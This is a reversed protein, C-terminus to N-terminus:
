SKGSIERNLDEMWESLSMQHTASSGKGESYKKKMTQENKPNKLKSISEGSNYFKMILEIASKRTREFTGHSMGSESLVASYLQNRVYLQNLITGYPEGLALYCMWVRVVSTEEMILHNAMIQYEKKREQLMTGYKEYTDQLDKVVGKAGPMGSKQSPLAVSHIINDTSRLDRSIMYLKRHIASIYDDKHRLIEVIDRETVPAYTNVTDM